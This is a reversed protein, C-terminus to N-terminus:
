IRKKITDLFVKIIIIINKLLRHSTIIRVVQLTDFSIVSYQKYEFYIKDHERPIASKVSFYNNQNYYKKMFKNFFILYDYIEFAEGDAIHELFGSTHTSYNSRDDENNNQHQLSYDENSVLAGGNDYCLELMYDEGSKDFGVVFYFNIREYNIMMNHSRITIIWNRINSSEICYKMVLVDDIYSQIINTIDKIFFLIIIECIRNYKKYFRIRKIKKKQSAKTYVYNRSLNLAKILINVDQKNIHITSM